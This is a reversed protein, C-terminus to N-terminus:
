AHKLNREHHELEFAIPDNRRLWTGYKVHDPVRGGGSLSEEEPTGIENFYEETEKRTCM